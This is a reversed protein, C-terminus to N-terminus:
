IEGIAKMVDYIRSKLEESVATDYDTQYNGPCGTLEMAYSYASFINGKLLTNRLLLINNLYKSCADIDKKEANEYLRKSNVPTCTFMGDLNKGIGSQIAIDFLDLGSYFLSFDDRRYNNREMEQILALNATKIGKINPIGALAEMVGFTIPSQTVPPLDYIYVPHKSAKSLLDFFRIIEPTNLKYYYPVTAVVGDIEMNGLSEIRDKVRSVSCDMVGVMVPLRQQVAEVCHAAVKPYESNGISTMKGMSGMCLIGKAGSEIMGEIQKRYSEAMLNGGADTPTGLAPYFGDEMKQNIM